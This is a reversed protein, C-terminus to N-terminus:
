NRHLTNDKTLILYIESKKVILSTKKYLVKGKFSNKLPCEKKGGLMSSFIACVFSHEYATNSGPHM